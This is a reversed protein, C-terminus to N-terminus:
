RECAWVGGDHDFCLARKGPVLSLLADAFDGTALTAAEAATVLQAGSNGTFYVGVPDGYAGALRRPFCDAGRLARCHAPDLDRHFHQLHERAKEPDELLCHEWRSQARPQIFAAIFGRLHVEVETAPAPRSNIPVPVCKEGVAKGQKANGHRFKALVHRRGVAEAWHAEQCIPYGARVEL